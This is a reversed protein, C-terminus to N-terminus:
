CSDGFSVRVFPLHPWTRPPPAARRLGVPRTLCSPLTVFGPGGCSSGAARPGSRCRTATPPARHRGRPHLEQMGPGPGSTGVVPNAIPPSSPALQPPLSQRYPSLVVAAVEARLRHCGPVPPQGHALRCQLTADRAERPRLPVMTTHSPRRRPVAATRRGGV